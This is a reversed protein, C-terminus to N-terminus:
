LQDNGNVFLADCHLIIREDYHLLNDTGCNPAFLNKLTFGRFRMAEYVPGFTSGNEYQPICNMEIVVYKTNRLTQEAGALVELEYGQVDIKLLDISMRPIVNDLPFVAVEGADCQSIDVGYKEGVGPLAVLLSSAQDAVSRLIRRVSEDGVACCSVSSGLYKAYKLALEKALDPLMEVAHIRGPRYEAIVEDIFQGRNAGVDVLVDVKEIGMRRLRNM